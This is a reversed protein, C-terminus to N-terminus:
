DIGFIQAMLYSTLLKYRVAPQRLDMNFMSQMREIHYVVNNRSMHMAAATETYRSESLLYACLLGFNNINHQRDYEKLEKLVRYYVSSHWIQSNEATQGLFIYPLCEDFTVAARDLGSFAGRIEPMGCLETIRGSCSLAQQAQTLAGPADMLNTFIDSMGCRIDYGSMIEALEICLRRCSESCDGKPLVSLIAVQGHFDIIRDESRRALVDRMLSSVSVSGSEDRSTITLCYQGTMSIGVHRSREEAVSRRTIRGDYLDSLFADYTHHCNNTSEWEKEVYVAILDTFLRFIDVMGQTVPLNNCTMVAHAFYTNSYKFVRSVLSYKSMDHSDNIIIGAANKWVEMRHHMRFLRITSEPHYGLERAAVTIEEDCETNKTYGLLNFSSDTIQLYNGLVPESLDILEQLPRNQLLAQQAKLYWQSFEVFIDHICSFLEEYSISENIVIIGEMVDDTEYGDQIRDRQCIFVINRRKEAPVLIALSLSCFYITDEAFDISHSIPLLRVDEFVRSDPCTVHSETQYRSLRDLIISLSINM